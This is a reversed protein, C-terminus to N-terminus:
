ALLRGAHPISERVGLMQMIHWISAQIGGVVPVGVDAELRVIAPLVRWAGGFLYIGDADPHQAHLAKGADYVQDATIRDAENFPAAIGEMARVDFGADTLYKAFTENQEGPTYTLGVLSQISLARLAATLAQTAFNVPVGHRESLEAALQEDAPYGLIMAPPAGEVYIADVGLEALEAIREGAVSVIDKFEQTTGTRVGAHMPIIGVGEPLLRITEELSGPRYTPKVLGVTGKRGYAWRRQQPADSM